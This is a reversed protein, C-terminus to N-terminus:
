KQFSNMITLLEKDHIEYNIEAASFKKSHFTVPHLKDDTKIQSLITNLAFNLADTKIFFTKSFNVRYLIPM